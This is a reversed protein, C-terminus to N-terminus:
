KYYCQGGLSFAAANSTIELRRRAAAGAGDSGRARSPAAGRAQLFLEGDILEARVGEPAALLDDYTAPPQNMERMTAHTSRM